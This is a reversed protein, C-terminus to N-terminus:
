RPPTITGDLAMPGTVENIKPWVLYHKWIGETRTCAVLFESSRNLRKKYYFEGCGSIHNKSLTIAISKMDTTLNDSWAAPYLAADTKTEKGSESSCSSCILSTLAIIISIRITKM